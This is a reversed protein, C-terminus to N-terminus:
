HSEVAVTSGFPPSIKKRRILQVIKQRMQKASLIYIITSLLPTLTVYLVAFAVSIIPPICGFYFIAIYLVVSPFYFSTLLMHGVCTSLTKRLEPLASGKVSKAINIYSYVIYVFNLVVLMVNLVLIVFQVISADTCILSTVSLLECFSNYVENAGCFPFISALMIPPLFCVMGTVWALGAMKGFIADRTLSLYYLPNCIAASRDYAMISLLLIKAASMSHFFYMQVFCNSWLIFKHHLILRALIRPIVATTLVLDVAALNALLFYMPMHLRKDTTVMYLVSVNGVIILIYVVLLLSGLGSEVDQLGPFGVLIFGTVPYRRQDSEAM